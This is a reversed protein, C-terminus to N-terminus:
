HRTISTPSRTVSHRADAEASSVDREVLLRPFARWRPKAGTRHGCWGRPCQTPTRCLDHNPVSRPEVCPELHGERVPSTCASTPGFPAPLVVSCHDSGTSTSRSPRVKGFSSRSTETRILVPTPASTRSPVGMSLTTWPTSPDLASAAAPPDDSSSSSITRSPARCVTGFGLVGGPSAAASDRPSRPTAQRITKSQRSGCTAFPALISGM